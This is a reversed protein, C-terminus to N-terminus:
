FAALAGFVVALAGVLLASPAFVVSAGSTNTNSGSGSSTGTGAGGASSALAAAAVHPIRRHGYSHRDTTTRIHQSTIPDAAHETCCSHWKSSGSTSSCAAAAKRQREVSSTAAAEKDCTLRLM